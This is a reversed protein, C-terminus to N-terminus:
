AGRWEEVTLAWREHDRWSGGVKLLGRALGEHRFGLRRVLALSRENGPQVNAELRHLSHRSFARRVVLSLGNKMMGKGAHPAFAYYGLAGSCMAGRVIENINIVGVLDGAGNCVFYGTHTGLSLREVYGRFAARTAPPQVWPEHLERSLKVLALFERERHGGAPELHVGEAARQKGSPKPVDVLAMFRALNKATFRISEWSQKETLRFSVHVFYLDPLNGRDRRPM